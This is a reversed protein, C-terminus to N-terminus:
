ENECDIENSKIEIYGFCSFYYLRGLLPFILFALVFLVPLIIDLNYFTVLNLNRSESLLEHVGGNQLVWETTKIFRERAGSPKSKILDRIRHAQRTYSPNSLMERIAQEISDPDTLLQKKHRRIGWGKKEVARSNQNQDFMFPITILPVGAQAAEVLGNYGAHTIFTRLRPHHLIAPQPLWDSVFVNSIMKAKERTNRDYKDARILFHYDPFKKVINLLSEMVKKDINTTNAITGLSFFIVGKEGKKMEKEFVPDMESTDYDVGLGGIHVVNPLTPASFDIIEDTALFIIDVDRAIETVSPFDSGYKKQFITTLRSNLVRFLINHAVGALLSKARELYTPVPSMDSVFPVSSLPAPLGTFDYVPAFFPCSSILFRREIGLAKAYGFGCLNLQEAFFGDFNQAKLENFVDDRTLFEECLDIYAGHWSNQIQLDDLISGDEMVNESFSLLVRKFHAEGKLDRVITKNVLEASKTTDSIRLFEIELLTVKHGARVLEDAIRGNSILHSKSTAPSFVLINYAFCSNFISLILLFSTPSMIILDVAEERMEESHVHGIDKSVWVEDIVAGNKDISIQEFHIHTLNAVTMITYGYDDSRHASWPMPLPSFKMGSSHCGASGSLFYVPAVPNHYAETGKYYKMDAVPWMREYAHVHGAFGIDVSNKIYEPELGPLGLAGHRLVVNEYLTCDAAEAVSCYFPRHQYLAIWPVAARNQSAAALDKSLWNYQTFISANGYQEEFGYYETSLGVWHVPGIDLSYFQNDDSGTPPMVFRNKFNTFNAGDNEHNGAIVMYPIKSIVPELSNMYQDGLKGNNSHLDYALDGIHVIFDFKGAIGNNIISQTSRGNYVGLDGFVCVKYSNLNAPLTRFNFTRSEIQYYYQTSPKLDKLIVVHSHRTIGGFIWSNTTGTMNAMNAASTGYSLSPEAADFTIWSVSIDWPSSYFAIHVQEPAGLVVALVGCLVFVTKM